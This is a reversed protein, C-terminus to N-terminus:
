RDATDPQNDSPIQNQNDGNGEAEKGEDCIVGVRGNYVCDIARECDDEKMQWIRRVAVYHKYESTEPSECLEIIKKEAKNKEDKCHVSHSILINLINTLDDTACKEKKECM